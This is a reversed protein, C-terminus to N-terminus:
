PAEDLPSPLLGSMAESVIAAGTVVPVIWDYGRVLLAVNVALAIGMVGPPILATALLAPAVQALRSTVVSALLRAATRLIVLCIAAWLVVANWQVMAGAVILLLAVLPHQLVRLDRDTIRDAAGPARRWVLAAAGGTLLPSTGLYAGSGALLLVAGTVFVGREQVAAHEFLLWGAVGIAVGAGLTAVLRMPAHEGALVAVIATGFVLLPLDDYDALHAARVVEDSAAAAVPLAASASACLAILLAAMPMSGPLQVGSNRILALLGTAVIVITIGGILTSSAASRRTVTAAHDALGLGMLVGIVALTLWALPALEAIVAPTLLNLGAPGLVIGALLYMVTPAATARLGLALHRRPIGFRSGHGRGIADDLRDVGLEPWEARPM